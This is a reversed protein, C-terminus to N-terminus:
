NVAHSRNFHSHYMGPQNYQHRLGVKSNYELLIGNHITVQKGNRCNKIVFWNVSSVGWSFFYHSDCMLVLEAIFTDLSTPEAVLRKIGRRIDSFLKFNNARIASLTSNKREDTAIYTVISENAQRERFIFKDMEMKLNSIFIESAECNMSHDLTGCRISIQDGRRWHATVYDNRTHHKLGLVKRLIPLWDAFRKNLVPPRLLEIHHSPRDYKGTTIATPGAVCEVKHYDFDTTVSVVMKEWGYRSPPHNTGTYICRNNSLITTNEVDICHVNSPLNVINCLNVLPIDPYHKSHFSVMYVSRNTVTAARWVYQLQQLHSCIGEDTSIYYFFNSQNNKHLQMVAHYPSTNSSYTGVVSSVNIAGNIPASRQLLTASDNTVIGTALIPAISINQINKPIGVLIDSKNKDDAVNTINELGLNGNRHSLLGNGLAITLNNSEISYNSSICRVGLLQVIM